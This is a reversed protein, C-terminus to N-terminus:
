LEMDNCKINYTRSYTMVPTIYQGGGGRAMGGGGGSLFPSLATKVRSFPQIVTKRGTIYAENCLYMFWPITSMDYFVYIFTWFCHLDSERTLITPYLQPFKRM